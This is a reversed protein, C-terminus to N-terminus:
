RVPRESLAAINLHALDVSTRLREIEAVLAQLVDQSNDRFGALAQAMDQYRVGEAVAAKAEEFTM